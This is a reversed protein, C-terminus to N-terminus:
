SLRTAAALHRVQHDHGRSFSQKVFRGHLAAGGQPSSGGFSGGFRGRSQELFEIDRGGLELFELGYGGGGQHRRLTGNETTEAATAGTASSASPSGNQVALSYQRM